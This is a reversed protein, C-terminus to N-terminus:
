NLSCIQIHHENIGKTNTYKVFNLVYACLWLCLNTQARFHTIEFCTAIRGTVYTMSQPRIPIHNRYFLQCRIDSNHFQYIIASYKMFILWSICKLAATAHRIVRFFCAYETALMDQNVLSYLRFLRHIEHRVSFFTLKRDVTMIRNDTRHLQRVSLSM